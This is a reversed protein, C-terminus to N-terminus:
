KQGSLPKQAKVLQEEAYIETAECNDYSINEYLDCLEWEQRGNQRNAQFCPTEPM